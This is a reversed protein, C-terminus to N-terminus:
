WANKMVNLVGANARTEHRKGVGLYVGLHVIPSSSDVAVTSVGNSLRTGM